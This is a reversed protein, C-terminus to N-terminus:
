TRRRRVAGLVLAVVILMMFIAFLVKAAAVGAHLVGGFGLVGAIMALAALLVVWYLMRSSRSDLRMRLEGRARRNREAVALDSGADMPSRPSREFGKPRGPRALEAM